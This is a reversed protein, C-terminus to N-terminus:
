LPKRFTKSIWLRKIHEKSKYQYDINKAQRCNKINVSRSHFLEHWPLERLIRMSHKVLGCIGERRVMEEAHLKAM